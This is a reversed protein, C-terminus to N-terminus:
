AGSMYLCVFYNDNICNLNCVKSFWVKHSKGIYTKHPPRKSCELVRELPKDPNFVVIHDDTSYTDDSHCFFGYELRGHDFHLQNCVDKILKQMVHVIKSQHSRDVDRDFHRVQLELYYIKDHLRLFVENCNEDSIRFTIVNSYYKTTGSGLQHKWREPLKELLHAVLSCFFGRPLFGSKFRILLPESLLFRCNDSYQMTSPLSCPLYYYEVKKIDQEITVTTIVKLNELIKFFNQLETKSIGKVKLDIRGEDLLYKALLRNDSFMELSDKTFHIDEASLHMIEALNTFLWQHNIIVWNCLKFHLVVGLVHFYELSAIIEEKDAIFANEKAMKEYEEYSMYKIDRLEQIELELYMWKIPLEIDETNEALKEVEQRIIEVEAGETESNGATTNDVPFIISNKPQLLYECCNREKAISYLKKNVTKMIEAKEKEDRKGIEDYHTGIFSIHSKKAKVYQTETHEVETSPEVSDTIFCMLLQIMDLYSYNLFYTPAEDHGKRKYRVQVTDELNKTLDHVVFNITPISNIAPLLMIYEPQGGTDLITIMKVTDGIEFTDSLESSHLIKDEMNNQPKDTTLSHDVNDPATNTSSSMQQSPKKSVLNSEYFMRLKLFTKLQGLQNEFDRKLWVSKGEQKLLSYSQVAVGQKTELIETSEYNGSFDSGFLLCGFSSKGAAAPGSLLIKIHQIKIVMNNKKAESLYQLYMMDVRCSVCVSLLSATFIQFCIFIQSM